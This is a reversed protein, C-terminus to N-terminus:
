LGKLSARSSWNSTSQSTTLLIRSAAVSAILSKFALLPIKLKVSITLFAPYLSLSNTNDYKRTHLSRLDRHVALNVNSDSRSGTSWTLTIIGICDWEKWSSNPSCGHPQSSSGEIVITHLIIINYTNEAFAKNFNFNLVSLGARARPGPNQRRNFVLRASQQSPFM